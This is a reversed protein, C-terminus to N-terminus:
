MQLLNGVNSGELQSSEFIHVHMWVDLCVNTWTDPMGDPAQMRQLRSHKGTSWQVASCLTCSFLLMKRELGPQRSAFALAATICSTGSPLELQQVATNYQELYQVTLNFINEKKNKLHMVQTFLVICRSCYLVVYGVTNTPYRLLKTPNVSM